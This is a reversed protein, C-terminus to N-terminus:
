FNDLSMAHHDYSSSRFKHNSQKQLRRLNETELSGKVDCM